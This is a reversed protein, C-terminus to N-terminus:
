VRVNWTNIAYNEISDAVNTYIFSKFINNQEINKSVQIRTQFLENALNEFCKSYKHKHYYESNAYMPYEEKWDLTALLVVFFNKPIKSNYILETFGLKQYEFTNSHLVSGVALNIQILKEVEIIGDIQNRNQYINWSWSSVVHHIPDTELIVSNAFKKVLLLNERFGPIWQQEKNLGRLIHTEFWTDINFNKIFGNIWKFAVDNFIPNDYLITNFLLPSQLFFTKVENAKNFINQECMEFVKVLDNNRISEKAICTIHATILHWFAHQITLYMFLEFYGDSLLTKWAIDNPYITRNTETDYICKLSLFNIPKIEDYNYILLIKKFGFPEKIFSGFINADSNTSNGDLRIILESSNLPNPELFQCMPTNAIYEGLLDLKDSVFIPYYKLVNEIDIGKFGSSKIQESFKKINSECRIKADPSIKEEKLKFVDYIISPVIKDQFYNDSDDLYFKYTIDDIFKQKINSNYFKIMKKYLKIM